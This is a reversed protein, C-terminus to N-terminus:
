PKGQGSLLELGYIVRGERPHRRFQLSTVVSEGPNL